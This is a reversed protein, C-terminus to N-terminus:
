DCASVKCNSTLSSCPRRLTSTAAKCARTSATSRRQAAAGAAADGDGSPRRGAPASSPSRASSATSRARSSRASASSVPGFSAASKCSKVLRMSFVSANAPPLKTALELWVDESTPASRAPRSARRPSVARSACSRVSSRRSLHRARESTLRMVSSMALAAAAVMSRASRLNTASYGGSCHSAWLLSLLLVLLPASSDMTEFSASTEWVGEVESSTREAKPALMAFSTPSISASSRTSSVERMRSTVASSRPSIRLSTATRTAATSARAPIMSALTPESIWRISLSRLELNVARSDTCTPGRRTAKSSSVFHLERVNTNSSSSRFFFAASCAKSSISALHWWASATPFAGLEEPPMSPLMETAEWLEAFSWLGM